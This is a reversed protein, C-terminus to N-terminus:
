PSVDPDRGERSMQRFSRSVSELKVSVYPNWPKITDRLRDTIHSLATVLAKCLVEALREAPDVSTLTPTFTTVATPEPPIVVPPYVELVSTISVSASVTPTPQVDPGLTPSLTRNRRRNAELEGTRFRPADVVM